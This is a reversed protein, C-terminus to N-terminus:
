RNLTNAEAEGTVGFIRVFINERPKSQTVSPAAQTNYIKVLRYTDPMQFGANATCVKAGIRVLSAKKSINYRLIANKDLSDQFEASRKQDMYALAFIHTQQYVYVLSILTAIVIVSLLKSLKM